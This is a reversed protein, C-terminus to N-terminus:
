LFSLASKLASTSLTNLFSSSSDFYCVHFLSDAPKDVVFQQAPFCFYIYGIKFLADDTRSRM